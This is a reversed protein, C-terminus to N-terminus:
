EGAWDRMERYSNFTHICGEVLWSQAHVVYEDGDFCAIKVFWEKDKAWEAQKRTM